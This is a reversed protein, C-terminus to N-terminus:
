TMEQEESIMKLGFYIIRSSPFSTLFVNDSLYKLKKSLSDRLREWVLLFVLISSLVNSAEIILTGYAYYTVVDLIAVISIPLLLVLLSLKTSIAMM